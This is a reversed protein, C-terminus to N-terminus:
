FDEGCPFPSVMQGMEEETVLPRMTGDRSVSLTDDGVRKLYDLPVVGRTMWCRMAKLDLANPVSSINAIWTETM